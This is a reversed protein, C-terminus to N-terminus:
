NGNGGPAVTNRRRAALKLAVDALDDALEPDSRFEELRDNLNPQSTASAGASASANANTNIVVGAAAPSQDLLTKDLLYRLLHTDGKKALEKARKWCWSLERTNLLRVLETNRNPIGPKRGKPNLSRGPLIRGKDDRDVVVLPEPPHGNGGASPTSPLSGPEPVHKGNGNNKAGDSADM